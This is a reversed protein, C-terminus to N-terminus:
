PRGCRRRRGPGRRPSARSRRWPRLDDRGAEDVRVGVEVHLQQPVPRRLRRQLVPDGRDHGAVARERERRQLGLVALGQDAHELLDLLHRGGGEGVRELPRPLVEGAVALRQLLAQGDVDRGSTPWLTIRSQTMPGSAFWRAARGVLDLRHLVQQALAQLGARHAKRGAEDVDVLVGPRHGAAEGVEGLEVRERGHEALEAAHQLDHRLEVVGVDGDGADVLQGLQRQLVADRGGERRHEVAAERRVRRRALEGADLLLEGAARPHPRLHLRPRDVDAERQEAGAEEETAQRAPHARQALRQGLPERRQAIWLRDLAQEVSAPASPPSAIKPVRTARPPSASGASSAPLVTFSIASARPSVGACASSLRDSSFPRSTAKM